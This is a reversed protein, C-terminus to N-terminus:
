LLSRGRLSGNRWIFSFDSLQQIRFGTKPTCLFINVVIFLYIVDINCGGSVYSYVVYCVPARDRRFLSFHLRGWSLIRIRRVCLEDGGSEARQCKTKEGPLGRPTCWVRHGLLRLLWRQTWWKSCLVGQTCVGIRPHEQERRIRFTRTRGGSWGWRRRQSRRRKWWCWWLRRWFCSLKGRPRSCGWRQPLLPVWGPLLWRQVVLRLHLVAPQLPNRQPLPLQVKPSLTSWSILLPPSRFRSWNGRLLTMPASTSPRATPKPTPTTVRSRSFIARLKWFQVKLLDGKRWM